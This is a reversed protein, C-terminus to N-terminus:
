RSSLRDETDIYYRKQWFSSPPSHLLCRWRGNFHQLFCFVCWDSSTIFSSCFFQPPSMLNVSPLCLPAAAATICVSYWDMAHGVPLLVDLVYQLNYREAPEPVGQSSSQAPSLSTQPERSLRSGRDGLFPHIATNHTQLNPKAVAIAVYLIWVVYIVAPKHFAFYICSTM